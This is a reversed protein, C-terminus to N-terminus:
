GGAHVRDGDRVGELLSPDVGGDGHLVSINGTTELVVAHLSGMDTINNERLKARIDHQTVRTRHLNEDLYRNGIMLVIPQNDIVKELSGRRRGLAIVVQTAFLVALAVLGNVLSVSSSAATSAMLSGVAVTMAFDFSSMKAFSRLGVIRVYTIVSAFVVTTSLAVLWIETWSSGLRESIM